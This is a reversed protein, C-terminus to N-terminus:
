RHVRAATIFPRAPYLRLHRLGSSSRCSSSTTCIHFVFPGIAQSFVPFNGVAIYYEDGEVPGAM